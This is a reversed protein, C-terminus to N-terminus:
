TVIVSGCDNLPRFWREAVLTDKPLSAKRGHFILRLELGCQGRGVGVLPETARAVVDVNAIVQWQVEVLDGALSAERTIMKESEEALCKVFRWM